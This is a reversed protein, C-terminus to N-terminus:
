GSDGHHCSYFDDAVLQRDDVLKIVNKHWKLVSRGESQLRCTFSPSDSRSDRLLRTVEGVVARAALSEQIGPEVERGRFSPVKSPM